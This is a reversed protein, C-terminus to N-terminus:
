GNCPGAIGARAGLPGDADRVRRRTRGPVHRVPDRQLLVGRGLPLARGSRAPPPAATGPTELLMAIDAHLLAGRKMVRTWDGRGELQALSVLQQIESRRFARAPKRVRLDVPHSLLEALATIYPALGDLEHRPWAHIALAPQDKMGPEHRDVADLWVTLKTLWPEDQASTNAAAAAVLLAVVLVCRVMCM